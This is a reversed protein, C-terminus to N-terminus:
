GNRAERAKALGEKIKKVREARKEPPLSAWEKSKGKSIRRRAWGSMKYTKRKKKRQVCPTSNGMLEVLERTLVVVKAELLELENAVISIRKYDMMM